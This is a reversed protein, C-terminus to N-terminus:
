IAPKTKTQHKQQALAASIATVTLATFLLMLPTPFEPIVPTPSPTPQITPSPVQTPTQSTSPSTPFPTPTSTSSLKTIVIRFNSTTGSTATFQYQANGKLSALRNGNVADMLDASYISPFTSSVNWSLTAIGNQDINIVNYEWAMSDAPQIIYTSLRQENIPATPNNAAFFYSSVGSIPNPPVIQDYNPDFGNAM